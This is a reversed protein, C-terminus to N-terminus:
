RFKEIDSIKIGLYPLNKDKEKIFLTFNDSFDFHRSPVFSMKNVSMGAESKVSGGKNNMKFEIVELTKDIEYFNDGILFKKNELEKYSGNVKFDLNSISITDDSNFQEYIELNIGQYIELFNNDVAGKVLIIEDNNKTELLVAYNSYDKYYLVKINKDLESKSNENIGFETDNLVDFPYLFEFERALMSYFFYDQSDDYFNFEDLIDSNKNFKNLINTKIEEKLSPTMYGHKKYYYDPSLDSEKFTEQNLDLVMQNNNDDLFVIDSEVEEKLDNWILQFTSTYIANDCLKTILTPVIKVNILNDSEKDEKIYSYMLCILLLLIILFTPLNEKFKM